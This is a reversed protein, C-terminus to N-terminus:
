LLVIRNVGGSRWEQDLSDVIDNTFGNMEPADIVEVLRGLRRWGNLKCLAEAEPWGPAEFYFCAWHIRGVENM